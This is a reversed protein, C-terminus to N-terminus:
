PVPKKDRAHESTSPISDTVQQVINYRDSTNNITDAQSIIVPKDTFIFKYINNWQWISVIFLIAAAAAYAYYPFIVFDRIRNHPGTKKNKIGRHIEPLLGSWYDDGPEPFNISGIFENAAKMENYLKRLESSKSISDRIINSEYENLKGNIYDPLLLKIENLNNM